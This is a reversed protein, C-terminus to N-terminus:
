RPSRHDKSRGSIAAGIAAGAVIGFAVGIGANGLAAGLAVGVALGIGTWKGVTAMSDPQESMKATGGTTYAQCESEAAARLTPRRLRNNYREPSAM